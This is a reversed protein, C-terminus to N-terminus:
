QHLRALRGRRLREVYARGGERRRWAGASAQLAHLVAHREQSGLYLRELAERILQSKTRGSSRALHALAADIEESLYIQTRVMVMIYTYM